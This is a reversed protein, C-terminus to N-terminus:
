VPQPVSARGEADTCGHLPVGDLGDRPRQAVLSAGQSVLSWLVLLDRLGWPLRCAMVGRSAVLPWWGTHTGREACM